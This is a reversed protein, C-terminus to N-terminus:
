IPIQISFTTGELEKSKVLISGGLAKILNNSMHLGLGKGQVHLHFRQYLGFIKDKQNKLDIGLGNDEIHFIVFKNNKELRIHIRLKHEPNRYKIANSILNYICTELHSRVTYVQKVNALDLIINGDVEAIQKQFGNIIRNLTDELYINERELTDVNRNELILNVDNFTDDLQFSANKIKNLIDQNDVVDMSQYDTLLSTLGQLQAVPQRLQHSVISTFQELDQMYLSMEAVLTKREVSIKKRATIEQGIILYYKLENKEDFIPNIVTATWFSDGSKNKSKLDGKWIHGSSITKLLYKYFIDNQYDLVFNSWFIGILERKTYQCVQMFLENVYTIKAEKDMVIVLASENLAQQTSRHALSTSKLNEEVTKLQHIDVRTGIIKIPQKNQNREMVKGREMLWKYDGKKTKMRYTIEYSDNEQFFLKAFAELIAGKDEKHILKTWNEQKPEFENPEYGLMIYNQESFYDINSKADIFILGSDIASVIYQTRKETEYLKEYSEKLKQTKKEVQKELEINVNQIHYTLTTLEENKSEIEQMRTRAKRELNKNVNEQLKIINRQKAERRLTQVNRYGTLSISFFLLVTLGGGTTVSDSYWQHPLWDAYYLGMVLLQFLVFANPYIFYKAQAYKKRIIIAFYLTLALSSFSLTFAFLYTLWWIQFFIFTAYIILIYVYSWILKRYRPLFAKIKLYNWAFLIYFFISPIITLYLLEPLITPSWNPLLELLIGSLNLRFFMLTIGFLSLYLYPRYRVTFFLFLHYIAFGLLIGIYLYSYQNASREEQEFDQISYYNFQQFIQHIKEQSFSHKNQLRFYLTRKPSIFNIPLTASVGVKFPRDKWALMFGARGLQHGSINDYWIVEEARTFNFIFISTNSNQPVEFDLKLWYTQIENKILNHSFLQFKNKDLVEKLTMKETADSYIYLNKLLKEHREAITTQAVTLKNVFLLLFVIFIPKFYYIIHIQM